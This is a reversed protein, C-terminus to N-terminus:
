ERAYAAFVAAVKGAKEDGCHLVIRYKLRLTQGAALTYPGQRQGGPGFDKRGFPNAAFLGYTRVHWCTPFRFSGPHNLIAIGVTRGDVPGHYDVWEAPQGWTAADRQGRSNVIQGGQKADVCLSEAVRVGFAGEKTDGFRVPGDGARITTDFDIWRGAADAGFTLRREDECQKAGDPSIWDNRTVLLAQRGSRVTVFERHRIQGSGPTEAWFDIGNVDGHTLWLSRQHPHDKTERKASDMPFSRTVPQGTPGLIPWLIPKSGSRVLYETFLQGDIKIAVGKATREASVESGRSVATASAAAFLLLFCPRCNM